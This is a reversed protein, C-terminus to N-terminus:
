QIANDVTCVVANDGGRLSKEVVRAPIVSELICRRNECKDIFM